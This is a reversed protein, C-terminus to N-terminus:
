IWRGGGKNEWRYHHPTRRWMERLKVVSGRSQENGNWITSAGGFFDEPRNRYNATIARGTMIDYDAHTRVFLLLGHKRVKARLSARKKADVHDSDIIVNGGQRLIETIAHETIKLSGEYREDAKRLQVRIADGELIV